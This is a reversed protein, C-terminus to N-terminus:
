SSGATLRVYTLLRQVAQRMDAAFREPPEAGAFGPTAVHDATVTLAAVAQEVELSQSALLIGLVVSGLNTMAQLVVTLQAPSMATLQARVAEILEWPPQRDQLPRALPLEPGMARLYTLLPTWAALQKAALATDADPHLEFGNPFHQLIAGITAETRDEVFDRQTAYLAYLTPRQLDIEGEGMLDDAIANALGWSPVQVPHGKPTYLPADNVLVTYMGDFARIDTSDIQEPLHM